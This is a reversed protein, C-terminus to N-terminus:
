RNRGIRVAPGAPGTTWRATLRQQQQSQQMQELRERGKDLRDEIGSRETEIVEDLKQNLDDLISGLDYRNM